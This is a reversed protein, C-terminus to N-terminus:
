ECLLVTLTDSEGRAVLLLALESILTLLLLKYGSPFSPSSLTLLLLLHMGDGDLDLTRPLHLSPKTRKEDELM